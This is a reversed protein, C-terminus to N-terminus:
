SWKCSQHISAMYFKANKTCEITYECSKVACAPENDVIPCSATQVAVAVPAWGVACKVDSPRLPCTCALLPLERSELDSVAYGSFLDSMSGFVVVGLLIIGVFLWIIIKKKMEM